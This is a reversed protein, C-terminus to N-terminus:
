SGDYPVALRETLLQSNVSVTSDPLFVEALWRGYKDTKYTQLIVQKGLVKDVLFLKAQMALVRKAPDRDNIEMTDLGYLRFRVATFVYFGLDVTADFTDGDVVKTVAARYLYHAKEM